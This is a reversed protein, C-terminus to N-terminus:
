PAAGESLHIAPHQGGVCWLVVALVVMAWLAGRIATLILTARTM